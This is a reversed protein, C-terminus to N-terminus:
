VALGRLVMSVLAAQVDEPKDAEYEGRLYALLLEEAAGIVVTASLWAPGGQLLGRERALATLEIAGTRIEAALAAVPARDDAVPTRCEQLYLRTQDPNDRVVDTLDSALRMYVLPLSARDAESLGARCRAYASPMGEAIPALIQEVLERKGTAYRYFSGKAIGARGVIQDITVATIGSELFLELGAKQILESKLKRNRDRAGGPPGPRQLDSSV